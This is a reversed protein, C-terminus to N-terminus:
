RQKGLYTKSAAVVYVGALVGWMGILVGRWFEQSASNGRTLLIIMATVILVLFLEVLHRDQSKKSAEEM